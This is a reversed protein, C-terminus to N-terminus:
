LTGEKGGSGTGDGSDERGCEGDSGTNGAAKSEEEIKRLLASIHAGNSISRDHRFQLVPTVRLNVEAALRRRM